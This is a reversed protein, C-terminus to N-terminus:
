SRSGQFQLFRLFLCLISVLFSSLNSRFPLISTFFSLGIFYMKLRKYSENENLVYFISNFQSLFLCKIKIMYLLLVISRDIFLATQLTDRLSIAEAWCDEIEKTTIIFAQSGLQSHDNM